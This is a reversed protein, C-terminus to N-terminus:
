QKYSKIIIDSIATAAMYVLGGIWGSIWTDSIAMSIIAIPIGILVYRLIKM